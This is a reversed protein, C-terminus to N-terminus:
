HTGVVRWAIPRGLLYDTGCELRRLIFERLTVGERIYGFGLSRINKPKNNWEKNGCIEGMYIAKTM